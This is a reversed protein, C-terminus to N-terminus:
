VRLINDDETQKEFHKLRVECIRFGNEKLKEYLSTYNEDYPCFVVAKSSELLKQHLYHEKQQKSKVFLLENQERM